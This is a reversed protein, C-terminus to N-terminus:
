GDSAFEKKDITTPLWSHAEDDRTKRCAGAHSTSRLDFARCALDFAMFATCTLQRAVCKSAEPGGMLKATAQM